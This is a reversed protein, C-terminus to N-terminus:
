LSILPSRSVLSLLWVSFLLWCQVDGSSPGKNPRFAYLFFLFNHMYTPFSYQKCTIVNNRCVLSSLFNAERFMVLRARILAGDQIQLPYICLFFDADDSRHVHDASLCMLFASSSTWGSSLTGSFLFINRMLAGCIYFRLPLGYSSFLIPQFHLLFIKVFIKM